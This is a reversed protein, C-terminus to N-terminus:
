KDVENVNHCHRRIEEKFFEFNGINFFSQHLMTFTNNSQYLLIVNRGLLAGTFTDWTNMITESQTTTIIETGEVKITFDKDPGLMKLMKKGSKMLRNRFVVYYAAALGIYSLGMYFNTGVMPQKLEDVIIVLAIVLLLAPIYLLRKRLVRGSPQNNYHLALSDNIIQKTLSVKITMYLRSQAVV